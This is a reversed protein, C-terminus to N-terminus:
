LSSSEEWQERGRGGGLSAQTGMGQGEGCPRLVGPLTAGRAWPFAVPWPTLHVHQGCGRWCASHGPWAPARWLRLELAGTVWLLAWPEGCRDLRWMFVTEAPPNCCTVGM